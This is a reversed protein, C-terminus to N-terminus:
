AAPAVEERDTALREEFARLLPTRGQTRYGHHPRSMNYTDLRADLDEQLEALSLYLKRRFAVKFFEESVTRHFWECFGNTYPAHVKTNRHDIQHIALFLEYPHHLPRGCFERGNDMLVHDVPVGRTEYFPLVRDNLVDVATM